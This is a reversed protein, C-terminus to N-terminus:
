LRLSFILGPVFGMILYPTEFYVEYAVELGLSVRRGLALEAGVGSRVYPLPKALTGLSDTSMALLAMGAGLHFLLGWHKGLELGYRLSLGVPVLFGLSEETAGQAQFVTVGLLGGIGLRGGAGKPLFGIQLISQYAIPFYYSAAGVAVFPAVSPALLLRAGEYRGAAPPPQAGPVGQLTGTEPAPGATEAPRGAEVPSPSSALDVAPGPQATQEPQAVQVPKRPGFAAVREEIRGKVRELLEDLADLIVTDLELDVRGKRDVAATMLRTPVEYWALSITLQTGSGAYRCELAFEASARRAGELLSASSAPTLGSPSVGSASGRIRASLGLGELRYRVADEVVPRFAEGASDSTLIEVWAAPGFSAEASLSVCGALLFGAVAWYGLSRLM